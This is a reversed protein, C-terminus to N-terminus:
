ERAWRVGVVVLRISHEVVRRHDCDRTRQGRQQRRRNRVFALWKGLQQSGGAAFSALGSATNLRGGGVSSFQGTARNDSGGSVVAYYTEALNGRGGTVSSWAGLISNRKGVSLGGFRTYNHEDGVIVNHSGTRDNLAGSQLKNYGVILNGLGDALGDTSGSGNVVQLNCGRFRITKVTGGQGDDLYEISMHRLIEKQEATLTLIADAETTGQRGAATLALSCATLVIALILISPRM